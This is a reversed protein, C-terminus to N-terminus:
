GEAHRVGGPYIAAIEGKTRIMDSEPMYRDEENSQSRHRVGQLALAGTVPPETLGSEKEPLKIENCAYCRSQGDFHALTCREGRGQSDNGLRLLLQFGMPSAMDRLWRYM